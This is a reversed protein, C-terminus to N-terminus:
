TLNFRIGIHWFIRPRLDLRQNEALPSTTSKSVTENPLIVDGQTGVVAGVTLYGFSWNGDAIRNVMGHVLAIAM